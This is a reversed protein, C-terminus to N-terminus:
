PVCPVPGGLLRRFSPLESAGHAKSLRSVVQLGSIQLAAHRRLYRMPATDGDLARAQVGYRGSYSGVGLICCAAIQTCQV